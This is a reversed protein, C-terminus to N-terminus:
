GARKVPIKSWAKWEEVRTEAEKKHSACHAVVVKEKTGDGMKVDVTIRRIASLACFSCPIWDKKLERATIHAVEPWNKAMKLATWDVNSRNWDRPM